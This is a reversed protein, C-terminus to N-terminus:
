SSNMRVRKWFALAIMGALLVAIMSWSFPVTFLGMRVEWQYLLRWAHFVAILTFLVAVLKDLLFKDSKKGKPM